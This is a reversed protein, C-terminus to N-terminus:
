KAKKNATAIMKNFDSESMFGGHGALQKGEPSAVVVFPLTNGSVSFKSAFVKKTAKDDCNVDAYVFKSEPLSVKKSNIMAKLAQCNECNERGFQLFLMKHETKAKELAANIDTVVPKAAFVTATALLVLCSSLLSKM